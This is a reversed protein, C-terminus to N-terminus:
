ESDTSINNQRPHGDDPMTLGNQLNDKDRHFSNEEFGDLSHVDM